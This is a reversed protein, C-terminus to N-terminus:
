INRRDDLLLDAFFEAQLRFRNSGLDDLPVPMGFIEGGKGENSSGDFFYRHLYPM